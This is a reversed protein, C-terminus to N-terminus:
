QIVPSEDGSADAKVEVVPVMAVFKVKGNKYSLTVQAGSFAKEELVQEEASHAAPEFEVEFGAFSSTESAVPNMSAKIESRREVVPEAM